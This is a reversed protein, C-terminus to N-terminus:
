EMRERVRAWWEGLRRYWPKPEPDFGPKLLERTIVVNAYIKLIAEPYRKPWVKREQFEALIDPLREVPIDMLGKVWKEITRKDPTVEGKRKFLGTSLCQGIFQRISEEKLKDM